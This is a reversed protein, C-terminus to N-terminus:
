DGHGADELIEELVSTAVSYDKRLKANLIVTRLASVLKTNEAKLRANEERLKRDEFDFADEFM